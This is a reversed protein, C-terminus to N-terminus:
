ATSCIGCIRAHANMHTYPSKPLQMRPSLALRFFMLMYTFVYMVVKAYEAIDVCIHIYVQIYTYM